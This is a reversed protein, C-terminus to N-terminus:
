RKRIDDRGSPSYSGLTRITVVLGLAGTRRRGLRGHALGEGMRPSPADKGLACDRTREVERLEIGDAGYSHHVVAKMTGGDSTDPVSIIPALSANM